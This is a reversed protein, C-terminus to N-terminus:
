SHVSLPAADGFPYIAGDDGILWYGGGSPTAEITVVPRPLPTAATTGKFVADGFSYVGGDNTLMYYGHGTPTPAMAQITAAPTSSLDGYHTEGFAFVIGDSTTMRYGQ